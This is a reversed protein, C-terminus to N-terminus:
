HTQASSDSHLGFVLGSRVVVSPVVVDDGFPVTVEVGPGDVNDGISGCSGDGPEEHLGLSQLCV